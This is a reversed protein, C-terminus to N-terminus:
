RIHVPAVGRVTLPLPTGVVAAEELFWVLILRLRQIARAEGREEVLLMEEMAPLTM